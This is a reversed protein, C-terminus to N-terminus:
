KVEYIVFDEVTQFYEDGSSFIEWKKGNADKFLICMERITDWAKLIQYGAFNSELVKLAQNFTFTKM